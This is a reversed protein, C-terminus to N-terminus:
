ADVHFSTSALQQWGGRSTSKDVYATCDAAGSQWVGSNLGFNRTTNLAGAFFGNWGNAVLVGNQFCQLNVFPQTTDTTSVNFTVLDGWNPAGNGNVDVVVPALTITSSGTTGGGGPKGKGALASPAVALAFALVSVLLIQRRNM